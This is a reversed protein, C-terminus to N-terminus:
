SVQPQASVTGFFFSSALDHAANKHAEAYNVEKLKAVAAPEPAVLAGTMGLKMSTKATAGPSLTVGDGFQADAIGSSAEVDEVKEHSQDPRRVPGLPGIPFDSKPGGIGSTKDSM